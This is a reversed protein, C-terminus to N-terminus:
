RLLRKRTCSQGQSRWMVCFIHWVLKIDWSHQLTLHSAPIMEQSHSSREKEEAHGRKLCSAWLGVGHTQMLSITLHLLHIPEPCVAPSWRASLPKQVFVNCIQWVGNKGNFPRCKGDTSRRSLISMRRTRKSTRYIKVQSSQRESESCLSVIM